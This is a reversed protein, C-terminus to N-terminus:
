NKEDIMSRLSSLLTWAFISIRGDYYQIDFMQSFLFFLVSAWIAKEYTNNEDSIKHSSFIVRGSRIILLSITITLLFSVPLGYSLAVDSIINHSHGRYLGYQSFYIASFANGGLGIIPATNIYHFANIFMHLRSGVIYKFDTMKSIQNINEIIGLPILNLFFDQLNNSFIPSFLFISTILITILIPIIWTLSTQGIVIPLTILLGALANRSNTLFIAFGISILFAFSINKRFLNATKELILAICFPWVFNLWSGAYNQNSFLGSLGDNNRIPKQFWIILGNFIELPGHWNFFYQGFGTILLPFTGAIAVKIFIKRKRKSNLYPQLSAYIWFFPLFNMISTFSDFPNFLSQYQNTNIFIQLISSLLILIGCTFFALNYKDKFFSNKNNFSSIIAAPIIFLASLFM